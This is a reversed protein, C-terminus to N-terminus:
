LSKNYSKIRHKIYDSCILRKHYQAFLNNLVRVDITKWATYISISNSGYLAMSSLGAFFGAPAAVTLPRNAGSIGRLICSILKLDVYFTKFINM